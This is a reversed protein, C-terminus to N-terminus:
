EEEERKQVYIKAKALIIKTGCQPCLTYYENEEDELMQQIKAVKDSLIRNKFWTVLYGITAIILSILYPKIAEFIEQEM